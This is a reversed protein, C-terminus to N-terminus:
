QRYHQIQNSMDVNGIHKRLCREYITIYQHAINHWSFETQMKQANREGMRQRLNPASILQKLVAALSISNKPEVLFGNTGDIVFEQVGGSRAAVIPLGCAMAETFVQGFSDGYSPLVFIDANNYIEPLNEHAQHGAMTVIDDLKLKVILNHLKNEYYGTGVITLHINYGELLSVAELLYDIGKWELLRSACLLKVPPKHRIEPYKFPRFINTDVGNFIVDIDLSPELQHVYQKLDHSLTVVADAKRWILRNIPKIINHLFQLEGPNYGPVDGGRLSVIYPKSHGILFSLLGTPVSFFYHILAYNNKRLLKRLIFFARILFELMGKIGTQHISKRHTPLSHIRAGALQYKFTTDGQSTVVDVRFGIKALEQCLHWTARGAGGGIPPFEYNIILVRM